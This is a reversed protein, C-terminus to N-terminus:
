TNAAAAVLELAQWRAYSAELETKVADLRAMTGTIKENGQRYFEPEGMRLNLEAQEAELSEIKM